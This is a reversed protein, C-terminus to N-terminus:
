GSALDSSGGVMRGLQTRIIWYDRVANIYDRYTNIENQKASLLEFPGLLMFNYQEQSLAVIKERLPIFVERYHEILNRAVMLRNRTTRVGSRIEIALAALQNEKQRIRAKLRAIEPQRRDFLPLALSVSPGTSWEGEADRESTVGVDLSSLWRFRSNLGLSQVLGDLEKRLALLDTRRSIAQSELSELGIEADPLEPLQDPIEWATDTGWLGLLINLQERSSFIDTQSSALELRAMEYLVQENAFALENINGAEYLKQALEFATQAAEVIVDLAAGVQQAGQLTYYAQRVDSVFNLVQDAVRFETEELQTTAVAKRVPRMLIDLFDQAVEFELETGAQSEGPFRATAFFAPNHLLGARVLDAQAIGLEEYIAQLSPSNLLAIQVATDISLPENLLDRVAKEAVQDEPGDQHWSLDQGTRDAVLVEVDTFGPQKSVRACGAHVILSFFVSVWIWDFHYKM